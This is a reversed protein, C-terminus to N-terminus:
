TGKGRNDGESKHRGADLWYAYILPIIFILFVKFEKFDFNVVDQLWGSFMIIIVLVVTEKKIM